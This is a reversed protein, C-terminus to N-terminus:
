RPTRAGDGDASTAEPAPRRDGHGGAGLRWACWGGAVALLSSAAFAPVFSGTRDAVLGAVQPGALQAAGFVFTLSGFAAGFARGSLHDAVHAGIATPVGAVCLGYGIAALLVPVLRTTLALAPALALILFGAVMAPPRGIRDSLRGFVVGGCISAGGLLSAVLNTAQSDWGADQLQTVFFYFFLSYGGGFLAFAAILWGWGPVARVASVRVPAAGPARTDAGGRVLALVAVLVLAGIAAEIAYVPRWAGDGAVARVANTLPGVVFIGLGIGSGVVGIAFGAREPGVMAAAIGPAPVWVAAGGFGAVVLGLALSAFSTATALLALGLVSLALGVKVIRTPDVKTSAWSTLGTGVLYAALSATGLTGARTLSQLVDEDIAKLLVPYSFRGFSQAVMSALLVLALSRIARRGLRAGSM